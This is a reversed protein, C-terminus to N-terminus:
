KLTEIKELDKIAEILNSIKKLPEGLSLITYKLNSELAKKHAKFIDNESIKKKNFAILLQEKENKKIKLILDSKNFSEIDIIEFSKELLFEKVKNFFKDNQKKETTRKKIIKKKSQIKKDFIDLKQKQIIETQEKIPIEKEKLEEKEEIKIPFIKEEIKIEKFHKKELLEKEPIKFYRWFFEENQKFPIAFDKIERLAVRIAPEQEKDKLIKKEKLLIFADKERSKLHHSFNEIFNEQGPIFYIPSSGIKMHSIKIKKESLLESLFASAFLMSLNTEKAVHVPLSPGRTKLIHLIKEKLESTDQTPM